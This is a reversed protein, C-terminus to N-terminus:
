EQQFRGGKYPGLFADLFIQFEEDTIKGKIPIIEAMHEEKESM